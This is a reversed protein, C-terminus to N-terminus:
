VQHRRLLGSQAAGDRGGMAPSECVESVGKSSEKGPFDATGTSVFFQRISLRSMAM